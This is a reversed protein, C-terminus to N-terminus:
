KIKQGREIIDSNEYINGIVYIKENYSLDFSRFTKDIDELEFSSHFKHIKFKVVHITEHELSKGNYNTCFLKSVIDGEYIEKKNEDKLGTNRKTVRELISNLERCANKAMDSKGIYGIITENEGNQDFVITYDGKENFFNTFKLNEM